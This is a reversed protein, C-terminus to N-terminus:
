DNFKKINVKFFISTTKNNLYLQNIDNKQLYLVNISENIKLILYM